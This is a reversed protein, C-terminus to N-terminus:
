NLGPKPPYLSRSLNKLNWRQNRKQRIMLYTLCINNLADDFKFSTWATKATKDKTPLGNYYLVVKLWKLKFKVIDVYGFYLLNDKINLYLDFTHDYLLPPPAGVQGWRIMILLTNLFGPPLEYGTTACSGSFWKFGYIKSIAVLARLPALSDPQRGM